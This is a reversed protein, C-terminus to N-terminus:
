NAKATGGKEYDNRRMLIMVASTYERRFESKGILGKM